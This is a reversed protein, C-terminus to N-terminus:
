ERDTAANLQGLTGSLILSLAKATKCPPLNSGSWDARRRERGTEDNVRSCRFVTFHLSSWRQAALDPIEVAQCTAINMTVTTVLAWVRSISSSSTIGHEMCACNTKTKREARSELNIWRPQRGRTIRPSLVHHSAVRGQSEPLSAQYLLYCLFPHRGVVRVKEAGNGSGSIEVKQPLFRCNAGINSSIM